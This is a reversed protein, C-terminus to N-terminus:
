EFDVKRLYQGKKLSNKIKKGIYNSIEYPQISDKPSPRLVEFHAPNLEDGSNIDKKLWISRRQVIVTEKENEEIKKVDSGLAYELERTRLVMEKWSDPNM